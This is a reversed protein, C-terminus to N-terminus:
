ASGVSLDIGGQICASGVSVSRHGIPVGVIVHGRRNIRLVFLAAIGVLCLGRNGSRQRTSRSAGDWAACVKPFSKQPRIGQMMMEWDLRYNEQRIGETVGVPGFSEQDALSQM